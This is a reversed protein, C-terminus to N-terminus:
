GESGKFLGAERLLGGTAVVRDPLQKLTVSVALQGDREGDVVPQFLPTIRRSQVVRRLASVRERSGQGPVLSETRM